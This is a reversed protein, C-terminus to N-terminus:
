ARKRIHRALMAAGTGLLLLTGPEPVPAPDDQPPNPNPGSVLQSIRWAFGRDQYDSDTRWPPLDEFQVRYDTWQPNVMRLLLAGGNTSTSTYGHGNDLSFTGDERHTFRHHNIYDSTGGLDKFLLPGKWAFPAPKAPDNADHLYEFGFLRWSVGCQECDWSLGNYFPKGQNPAATPASWKGPTIPEATAVTATFLIALAALTYKM